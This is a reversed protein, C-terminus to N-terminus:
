LRSRVKTGSVPFDNMANVAEAQMGANLEAIATRQQNYQMEERMAQIQAQVAAQQEEM